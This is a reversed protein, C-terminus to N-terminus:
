DMRNIVRAHETIGIVNFFAAVLRNVDSFHVTRNEAQRASVWNLLTGAASFDVRILKACSILMIDAGMLKAELQDLVAIADGQIQGSLEISLLNGMQSNTMDMQTDGEMVSQGSAMSDRFADSIITHGAIAAGEPDLPKYDCRASEWAPPSVEYTVCFDLAALEFEDPRHTVRLAEMRLQWRQQPTDRQGSPTASHLVMQLQSDGTFRLQVPQASWSSFLKCLPDVAAAEVTKLNSWDLVWPMPAKAIAVKLAAVTQIGIVSPCIWDVAPGQRPARSSSGALQKVMDPMSFWQPASRDFRQVFQIAANEFKGPQDTARYLDFLTMWTEAHAVRTGKPSLMELLGAEAGADDGNAFRISAEELEADHAVEAVDVAAMNTPTFGSIGNDYSGGAWSLAHIGHPKVPANHVMPKNPTPQLASPQTPVETPAVPPRVTPKVPPPNTAKKAVQEAMMKLSAPETAGYGAPLANDLLAPANPVPPSFGPFASSNVSDISSRPKTQWWQMSMQAEIEDIKKITQARDDPRSPLSSQFFSPRAGPDQGVMADRKRMKRLMDFERKRVFDNRRKREIMEKLLQKSMAEDRDTEKNDLDSWSTAPNRVFKVVKSLLGPATDEKAM